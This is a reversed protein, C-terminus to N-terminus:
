GGRLWDYLAVSPIRVRRGFRRVPIDGRHTADRVSQVPVGLLEAAQTMDLLLPLSALRQALWDTGSADVNTAQTTTSAAREAAARPIRFNGGQVFAPLEGRDIRRRVTSESFGLMAAAEKVSITEVGNMSGHRAGV